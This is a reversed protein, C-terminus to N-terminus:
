SVMELYFQRRVPNMSLVEAESWGYAQALMHVEGLLRKACLTIETWLLSVIDFLVQWQHGCAACTLDLRMEAEPDLEDMRATVAVVIPEPLDEAKVEAGDRTAQIICRQLLLQRALIVDQCGLIAALDRSNPLRFQLEYGDGTLQHVQGVPGIDSEAHMQSTDLLFEVQGQCAPCVALSSLRPGFTQERIRMLSSDRQGISLLALKDRRAQPFEAQLMTLARDLPHQAQGVEWISLMEQGTFARMM